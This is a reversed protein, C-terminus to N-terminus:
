TVSVHRTAVPDVREAVQVCHLRSPDECPVPSTEHVFIASQDSMVASLEPDRTDGLEGVPLRGQVSGPPPCGQEEEVVGDGEGRAVPWAAEAPPLLIAGVLIGHAAAESGVSGDGRYLQVPHQALLSKSSPSPQLPGAITLQPAFIGIEEGIPGHDHGFPVRTEHDAVSCEAEVEGSPGIWPGPWTCPPHGHQCWRRRDEGEGM